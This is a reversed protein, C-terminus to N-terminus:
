HGKMVKTSDLGVHQQAAADSDPLEQCPPKSYAEAAALSDAEIEALEEATPECVQCNIGGCGKCQTHTLASLPGRWTVSGGCREYQM